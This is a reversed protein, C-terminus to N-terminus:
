STKKTAPAPNMEESRSYIPWFIPLQVVLVFNSRLKHNKHSLLKLAPVVSKGVFFGTEKLVPKAQLPLQVRVLSRRTILEKVLTKDVM